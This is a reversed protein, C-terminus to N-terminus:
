MYGAYSWDMLPGAGSRDFREGACGYLSSARVADGPCPACGSWPATPYCCRAGSARLCGYSATHSRTLSHPSPPTKPKTHGPQSPM